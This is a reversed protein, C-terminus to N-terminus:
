TRARHITTTGTRLANTLALAVIKLQFTGHAEAICAQEQAPPLVTPFPWFSKSALKAPSPPDSSLTKFTNSVYELTESLSEGEPDKGNSSDSNCEGTAMVKAKGKRGQHSHRQIQSGGGWFFVRRGKIKKRVPLKVVTLIWFTSHSSPPAM